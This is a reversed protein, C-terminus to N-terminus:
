IAQELLLNFERKVVTEPMLDLLEILHNALISGPINWSDPHRECSVNWVQFTLPLGTSSKVRLTGWVDGCYMCFFAYGTRRWNVDYTVEGLDQGHIIIQATYTEPLANDIYLTM